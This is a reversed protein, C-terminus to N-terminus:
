IAFSCDICVMRSKGHHQMCLKLYDPLIGAGCLEKSDTAFYVSCALCHYLRINTMSVQYIPVAFAEKTMFSASRTAPSGVVAALAKLLAPSDAPMPCGPVAELLCIVIGQVLLHSGSPQEAHHM